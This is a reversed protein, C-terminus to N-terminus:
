AASRRHPEAPVPDATMWSADCPVDFGSRVRALLERRTAGLAELQPLDVLAARAVVLSLRRAIALGFPSLRARLYAV